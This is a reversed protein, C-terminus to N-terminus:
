FQVTQNSPNAQSPRYLRRARLSGRRSRRALEATFAALREQGLARYNDWVDRGGANVNAAFAIALGFAMGYIKLHSKM